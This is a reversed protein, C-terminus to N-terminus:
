FAMQRIYAEPRTKRFTSLLKRWDYGLYGVAKEERPRLDLTKTSCSTHARARLKAKLQAGPIVSLWLRQWPTWMQLHISVAEEQLANQTRQYKEAFSHGGLESKWEVFACTM